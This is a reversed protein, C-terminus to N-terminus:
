GISESGIKYKGIKEKGYALSFKDFICFLYPLPLIQRTFHLYPTQSKLDSIHSILYSIHSQLHLNWSHNQQNLNLM